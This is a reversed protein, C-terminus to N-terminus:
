LEYNSIGLIQKSKKVSHERCDHPNQCDCYWDFDDATQEISRKSNTAFKKIENICIDCFDKFHFKTNIHSHLCKKYENAMVSSLKTNCKKCIGIRCHDCASTCNDDTINKSCSLCKTYVKKSKTM